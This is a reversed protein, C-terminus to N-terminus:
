KRRDLHNKVLRKMVDDIFFDPRGKLEKSYELAKNKIFEEIQQTAEDMYERKNNVDIDFQEPNYEYKSSGMMSGKM